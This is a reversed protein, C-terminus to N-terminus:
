VRGGSLIKYLPPCIVRCLFLVAVAGIAVAVTLAIAALATKPYGFGHVGLYPVGNILMKMVLDQCCYMFFTGSLIKSVFGARKICDVICFRSDVFDYAMWSAVICIPVMFWRMFTEPLSWIRCCSVKFVVGGGLIMLLWVSKAVNQYKDLTAQWVGSVGILVGLLFYMTSFVITKQGPVNVVLCLTAFVIYVCLWTTLRNKCSVTGMKATAVVLPSSLVLAMLTKVYWLSALVPLHHTIGLVNLLSRSKLLGLACWGIMCWLFYPLALSRIRKRVAVLYWGKDLKRSLFFGSLLFFFSVPYDAIGYAIANRWIFGAASGSEVAASSHQLVVFALAIASLVKIKVSLREDIM